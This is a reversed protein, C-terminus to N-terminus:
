YNIKIRGSEFTADVGNLSKVQVRYLNHGRWLFIRGSAVRTSTASNTELDSLIVGISHTADFLRVFVKSGSSATKIVAEWDIYADEGYEEAANILVDTTKVDVWDTSKTTFPGALPIYVTQSKTLQVASTPIPSSTANLSASITALAEYVQRKIEDKCDEGCNDIAATNSDEFSTKSLSPSLTNQPQRYLFIFGVSLAIVSILLYVKLFKDLM